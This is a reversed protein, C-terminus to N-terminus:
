NQPNQKQKKQPHNSNDADENKRKLTQNINANMQQNNEVSTPIVNYVPNYQGPNILPQFNTNTGYYYPIQNYPMFNSQAYNPQLSNNANSMTNQILNNPMIGNGNQVNSFNHPIPNMNALNNLGMYSNSSPVFGPNQNMPANQQNNFGNSSPIIQNNNAVNPNMYSNTTPVLGNNGQPILNPQNSPQTLKNANVFTNQINPHQIHTQNKSITPTNENPKSLSTKLNLILKKATDIKLQLEHLYNKLSEKNLTISILFEVYALHKDVVFITSDKHLGGFSCVFNNAKKKDPGIYGIRDDRKKSICNGTLVRAYAFTLTDPIENIEKLLPKEFGRKQIEELSCQPDLWGIDKHLTTNFLAPNVSIHKNLLAEIDKSAYIGEGGFNNECPLEDNNQLKEHTLPLSKLDIFVNEQNLNTNQAKMKNKELSFNTWMDLNQVYKIKINEFKLGLIDLENEVKQKYKAYLPDNQALEKIAYHGLSEDYNKPLKIELTKKITKEKKQKEIKQDELINNIYEILEIRNLESLNEPYPRLFKYTNDFLNPKELCEKIYKLDKIPHLKLEKKYKQLTKAEVGEEIPYKPNFTASASYNFFAFGMIFILQM